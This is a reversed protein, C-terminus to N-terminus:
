ATAENHNIVTYLHFSENGIRYGLGQDDVAMELLDKPAITFPVSMSQLAPLLGRLSGAIVNVLEGVADIRDEEHIDSQELELLQGAVYDALPRTCRVIVASQQFPDCYVAMSVDDDRYVPQVAEPCTSFQLLLSFTQEVLDHITQQPITQWPSSTM